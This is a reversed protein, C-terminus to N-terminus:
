ADRETVSSADQGSSGCSSWTSSQGPCAPPSTGEGVKTAAQSVKSVSGASRIRAPGREPEDTPVVPWREDFEGPQVAVVRALDSIQELRGPLAMHGIWPGM